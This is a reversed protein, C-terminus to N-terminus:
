IHVIYITQNKHIIKQAQFERFKVEVYYPIRYTKVTTDTMLCEERNDVRAITILRNMSNYRYLDLESM